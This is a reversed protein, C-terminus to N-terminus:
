KTEEKSFAVTVNSDERHETRIYKRSDKCYVHVNSDDHKYHKSCNKHFGFFCKINM